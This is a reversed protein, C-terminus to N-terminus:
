LYSYGPKNIKLRSRLTDTTINLAKAADKMCGFEGIPTSVRIARVSNGGKPKNAQKLKLLEITKTTHRRGYFSTQEGTKGWNPNKNGKLGPSGIPRGDKGNEPRLNAWEKSEVIKNKESFELAFKECDDQDTFEWVELTEINKGHIKLHRRWYKGSGLYVYPDKTM